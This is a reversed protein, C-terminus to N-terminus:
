EATANKGKAMVAAVEGIGKILGLPSYNLAQGIINAPVNAFPMFATGLGVKKGHSDKVGVVNGINRLGGTITTMAGQNQFTRERAVENADDMLADAELKGNSKLYDIQCQREARTGGKAFEDTAVLMYKQWKEWTSMLREAFNVPVNLANPNDPKAMKFTRGDRMEWKGTGDEIPADLAIEIYARILGDIAGRRKEESLYSKDLTTTRRKTRASM